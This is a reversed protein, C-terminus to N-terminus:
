SLGRNLQAKAAEPLCDFTLFYRVEGGESKAQEAQQPQTSGSYFLQSKFILPSFFSLLV